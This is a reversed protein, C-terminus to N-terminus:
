MIFLFSLFFGLAIRFGTGGRSKRSSVIVGMFTLILVAFPSTFRVYKEVEYIEVNSAGRFKLKEIYDNLENITMGDFRRYDSAFENPHIALTTDMIQGTEVSEQDNEFKWIKWDRLEWRNSDNKWKITKASLKQIVQNDQIKELTFRFGSNTANMYNKMYLYTNPAVQIHINQQDFNYQRELYKIEFDLRHKNSNPIVWGTLYFSLGGIIAAGVLYPVLLRNFSMGGSLMAIIESHGAMRSTIYVTAIFVTIPTILNAIFPLYDMYYGLITMLSLDNRVFKEIKETVDIVTIIAMIIMVVYFFTILFRSLIYKDLLRM